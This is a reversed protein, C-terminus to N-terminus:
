DLLSDILQGLKLIESDSVQGDKTISKIYENLTYLESTYVGHKQIAIRRRINRKLNELYDISNIGNRNVVGLSQILNDGFLLFSNKISNVTQNYTLLEIDQGVQLLSNLGLSSDFTDDISTNLDNTLLEILSLKTEEDINVNQNLIETIYENYNNKIEFVLSQQLNIGLPDNYTPAAFYNSETEVMESVKIKSYEDVATKLENTFQEQNADDVFLDDILDIFEATEFVNLMSTPLINQLNLNLLPRIGNTEIIDRTRMNEDIAKYMNVIDNFSLYGISIQSEIDSLITQQLLSFPVGRSFQDLLNLNTETLSNFNILMKQINVPIFEKIRAIHIQSQLITSIMGFGSLKSLIKNTSHSQLKKNYNPDSELSIYDWLKSQSISKKRKAEQLLLDLSSLQYGKQYNDYSIHPEKYKKSFFDNLATVNIM